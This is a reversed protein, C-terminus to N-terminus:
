VTTETLAGNGQLGFTAEVGGDVSASRGISTVSATGTYYTDASVAGEPYFNATISANITMAGQGNSDTEDWFCTVSGEWSSVTALHTRASDGMSTDDFNEGTETISWDRIEAITNAGVKVTGEKGAHTAM